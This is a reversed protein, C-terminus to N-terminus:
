DQGVHMPQISVESKVALQVGVTAYKNVMNKYETEYALPKWERDRNSGDLARYCLMKGLGMNILECQVVPVPFEKALFGSKKGEHIVLESGIENEFESYELDIAFALTRDRIRVEFTDNSSNTETFPSVSPLPTRRQADQSENPIPSSIDYFPLTHEVPSSMLETPPPRRSAMMNSRGKNTVAAPIPTRSTARPAIAARMREDDLGDSLNTDSKTQRSSAISTKNSSGKNTAAAPIPTRPIARPAIVARTREDDSEDSLNANSKTRRGPPTERSNNTAAYNESVQNRVINTQKQVADKVRRNRSRVRDWCLTRIVDRTVMKDWAWSSPAAATIGKIAPYMKTEYAYASFNQRLDMGRKICEELVFARCDRKRREDGLVGMRRNLDRRFSGSDKASDVCGHLAPNESSERTRNSFVETSEKERVGSTSNVRLGSTEGSQRRSGGAAAPLHTVVPKKRAFTPRTYLEDDSTDSPPPRKRAVTSSPAERGLTGRVVPQKPANRAAAARTPTDESPPLSRQYAPTPRATSDTSQSLM